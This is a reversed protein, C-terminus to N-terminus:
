FFFGTLIEAESRVNRCRIEQQTLTHRTYISCFKWISLSEDSEVVRRRQIFFHAYWEDAHARGVLQRFMWPCYVCKDRDIMSIQVPQVRVSLSSKDLPRKIQAYVYTTLPNRSTTDGRWFSTVELYLWSYRHRWGVRVGAATLKGWATSEFAAGKRNTQIYFFYHCYHLSNKDAFLFIHLIRCVLQQINDTQILM